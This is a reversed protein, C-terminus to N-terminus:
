KSLGRRGSAGLVVLLKLFIKLADIQFLFPFPFEENFGIWLSSKMTGKLFEHRKESPLCPQVVKFM